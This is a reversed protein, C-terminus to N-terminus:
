KAPRARAPPKGACSDRCSEQRLMVWDLQPEQERAQAAGSPLRSEQLYFCWAAGEVTLRAPAARLTAQLPVRREGQYAFWREQVLALRWGGLLLGNPRTGHAMVLWPQTEDARTLALRSLPGAPKIQLEGSARQPGFHQPLDAPWPQVRVTEHDAFPLTLRQGDLQPQVARATLPEDQRLGEIQLAAASALGIGSALLAALLLRPAVTM